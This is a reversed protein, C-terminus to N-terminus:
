DTLTTFQHAAKGGKAVCRGVNERTGRPRGPRPANPRPARRARESTGRKEEGATSRGRADRGGGPMGRREATPRFRGACASVEGARPREGRPKIVLSRQANKKREHPPQPSRNKWRETPEETTRHAQAREARAKATRGTAALGEPSIREEPAGSRRTAESQAPAHDRREQKTAVGDCSRRLEAGSLKQQSEEAPTTREQHSPQRGSGPSRAGPM